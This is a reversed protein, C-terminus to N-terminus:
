NGFHQGIVSAHLASCKDSRHFHEKVDGSVRVVRNALHELMKLKGHMAAIFLPTEGRKNRIELLSGKAESQLLLEDEIEFVVDAMQVEKCFVVEHLITNGECNKQCLAKWREEKPVLEILEKLLKPNNSRTAVHIANNEFLDFWKLINEKDDKM